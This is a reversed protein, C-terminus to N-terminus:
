RLPAFLAFFFLLSSSCLLMLSEFFTFEEKEPFKANKAGKRHM